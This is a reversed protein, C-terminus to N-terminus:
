PPEARAGAGARAVERVPPQRRDAPPGAGGARGGPSGAFGTYVGQEMGRAALSLARSGHVVVRGLVLASSLGVAVAVVVVFLVRLDHGSLFMLSASGLAGAVVAGLSTCVLVVASTTLSRTRLRRLVLAGLLAVALASGAVVAVVTLLDGGSM